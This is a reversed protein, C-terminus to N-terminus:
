KHLRSKYFCTFEGTKINVNNSLKSFIKKLVIARPRCFAPVTNICLSSNFFMDYFQLVLKINHNNTRYFFIILKRM